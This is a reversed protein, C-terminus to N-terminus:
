LIKILQNIENRLKVAREITFQEAIDTALKNPIPCAKKKMTKGHDTLKINIKREDSTSKERVIIKKAEMRKLLPTLTNTSLFLMNGIEMVTQCDKEWLILLILYQPYTINLEKLLPKYMKTVLRSAAYLPFCLQNELKLAEDDNM